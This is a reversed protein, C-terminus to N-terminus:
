NTRQRSCLSTELESLSTDSDETDTTDYSMESDPSDYGRTILEPMSIEDSSYGSESDEGSWLEQENTDSEREAQLSNTIQRGICARPTHERPTPCLYCTRHPVPLNSKPTHEEESEEDSTFLPFLPLFNTTNDINEGGVKQEESTAERSRKKSAKDENSEYYIFSQPAAEMAATHHNGVVNDMNSDNDDGSKYGIDNATNDDKNPTHHTTVNPPPTPTEYGYDVPVHATGMAATNYYAIEISSDDESDDLYEYYVMNTVLENGAEYDNEYATTEDEAAEDAETAMTTEKESEATRVEVPQYNRRWILNAYEVENMEVGTASDNEEDYDYYDQVLQNVDLDIKDADSGATGLGTVTQTQNDIVNHEHQYIEGRTTYAYEIEVQTTTVDDDVQADSKDCEKCMMIHEEGVRRKKATPEEEVDDDVEEDLVMGIFLSNINDADDNNDDEKGDKMPCYRAIHGPKSCKWCTRDPDKLQGFNAPRGHKAWCAAESHGPKQCYGCKNPQGAVLALDDTAKKRSSRKKSRSKRDEDESEEDSENSSEDEDDSSSSEDDSTRYSVFSRKNARRYKSKKKKTKRSSKCLYRRWYRQLKTKIGDLDNLYNPTTEIITAIPGYERPLHRLIHAAIVKDPKEYAADLQGLKRNLFELDSIWNDPSNRKTALTCENFEAELEDLATGDADNNEYKMCILDYMKKPDNGAEGLKRLTRRDVSDTMMLGASMYKKRKMKEEEVELLSLAKAVDDTLSYAAIEDAKIEAETKIPVTSTLYEYLGKQRAIQITRQRWEDFHRAKSIKVHTKSKRARDKKNSRSEDSSSM